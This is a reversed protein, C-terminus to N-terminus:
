FDIFSAACEQPEMGYIRYVEDSWVLKNEALNLEWSGLHALEQARELREESDALAATREAVRRELTEKAETLAAQARKVETIDIGMELILQSGDSDTFPFDHVDYNRGDPGLWEWNSPAKTKM